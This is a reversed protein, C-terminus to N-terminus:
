RAPQMGPPPATRGGPRVGTVRGAVLTVVKDARDSIDPEHSIVLVSRDGGADLLEGLAVASSAPDLHATPEDLLLLPTGALLARALGIRQREGASVPRGGSGLSTALGDALTAVWPGLGVRELAALCEDDGAAPCALRLNAALTAAFVHTRDPVWGALSAIGQRTMAAVDVGGLTAKGASCAVFHLLANVATTKGSGSPGVLAVHEGPAIGFSVGRLVPAGDTGRTEAGDLAGPGGVADRSGDVAPELVPPPLRELWRLRGAAAAASNTGALAGPAGACQDMVALTAFAVVALAVGSLRGARGAALGAATVAILVGGAAAVAGGRALGNVLARRAELSASRRRVEEMRGEVLDRRGFAVLERASRATQVVSGALRARESAVRADLVRGFRALVFSVAVVALGGGLVVGGLLPDCVAALVAGFLISATIDVTATTARAFGEALLETDSVFGSLVEGSGDAGLAGPVLPVVVDYLHLRLRGLVGLSLRHVGLRQCYRALGRGLSFAQVAGIAICLSLVPPRQSARTILWGSTALLGVACVASLVGAGVTPGFQAPRLGAARCCQGVVTRPARRAGRNM